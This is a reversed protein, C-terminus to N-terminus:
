HREVAGVMKVKTFADARARQHQHKAAESSRWKAALHAVDNLDVVVILVVRIKEGNVDAFRMGGVFPLHLGVHFIVNAVRLRFRQFLAHGDGLIEGRAVLKRQGEADIVQAVRRIVGIGGPGLPQVDDIFGPVDHIAAPHPWEVVFGGLNAFPKGRLITGHLV